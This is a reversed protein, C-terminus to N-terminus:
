ERSKSCKEDKFLGVDEMKENEYEFLYKQEVPGVPPLQVVIPPPANIRVDAM